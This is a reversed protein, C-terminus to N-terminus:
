KLLHPYEILDLVDMSRDDEPIYVSMMPVSVNYIDYLPLCHHLPRANLEEEELPGLNLLM